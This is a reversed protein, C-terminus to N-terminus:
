ILSYISLSPINYKSKTLTKINFRYKKKYLELIENIKNNEYNDDYGDFGILYINKVNARALIALAYEFSLDNQIYCKNKKSNIKKKDTIINFSYAHINISSNKKNISELYLQKSTIIHLKNNIYNKHDYLIRM